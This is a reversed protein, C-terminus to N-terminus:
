VGVAAAVPRLVAVTGSLSVLEAGGSILEDVVATVDPDWRGDYVGPNVRYDHFALLGDPALLGIALAADRQVSAYDHAGDIFALDFGGTPLHSAADWFRGQIATIKHPVEYRIANEMFDGFTDRPRETCDGDFPDVAVVSAATQAMCITSRGCYSGVELVRKDEALDALARGEDETLWGDVDAPFRWPLQEGRAAREAKKWAQTCNLWGMDTHWEGWPSRNHFVPLEHDLKVKRTALVKKGQRHLQRAFDWDEPIDWGAWAGEPTQIIDNLFRFVIKRDPRNPDAWAPDWRCLWLGSNILLPGGNNWPVDEASFTEPLRFVERLTLRRPNWPMEPNVDVATSTVGKGNKIPVVASICDAGTRELEDFLVDLWDSFGGPMDPAVDDHIMAIHTIPDNRSANLIDAWLMNFVRPLM